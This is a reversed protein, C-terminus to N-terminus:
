RGTYRFAAWASPSRTGPASARLLRLQAARLADPADGSTGYLDYFAAMFARTHDDDVRWLSGLVGGAGAGLMSGAVGQFGDARGTGSRISQCASLVVLTIGRLDM